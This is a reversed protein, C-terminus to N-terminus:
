SSKSHSVSSSSLKSRKASKFFPSSDAHGAKCERRFRMLIADDKGFRDRADSIGFDVVDDMKPTRIIAGM